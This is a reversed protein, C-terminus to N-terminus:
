ISFVHNLDRSNSQIKPEFKYILEFRVSLLGVGWREDLDIGCEFPALM